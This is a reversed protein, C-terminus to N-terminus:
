FCNIRKVLCKMNCYMISRSHVLGLFSHLLRILFKMCCFYWNILRNWEKHRITNEIKCVFNQVMPELRVRAHWNYYHLIMLTITGNCICLTFLPVHVHCHKRTINSRRYDRSTRMQASVCLHLEAMIWALVSHEINRIGKRESLTFWGYGSVGHTPDGVFEV